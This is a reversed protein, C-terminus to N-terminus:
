IRSFGHLLLVRTHSLSSHVVLCTSFAPRSPLVWPCVSSCLFLFTIYGEYTLQLVATVVMFLM